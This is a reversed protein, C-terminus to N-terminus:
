ELEEWKERLEEFIKKAAEEDKDELAIVFNEAIEKGNKTDDSLLNKKSMM